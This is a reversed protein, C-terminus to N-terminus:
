KGRMLAILFGMLTFIAVFELRGIWMQFIYTLKLITPMAPSTIGCSLGVNAAASTSEFLSELFPYGCLMGMIAGLVYLMLYALFIIAASRVHRDELILDRIHHFKEVLITNDPLMLQKVDQIFAKFVLGIRLAKIGGTTSCAAGGLGMAIIVGVMALGPWAQVFEFPSVTMYGTGTHGSILHYFGKRFLAVAEPYVRIKALGIAVLLFTFIVTFFFTRIEIDRWFEKRKGIWLSYHLNFNILGLFMMFITALEFPFSHYYLINQSHAACGGTD